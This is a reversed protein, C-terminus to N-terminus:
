KSVKSDAIAIVLERLAEYHERKREDKIYQEWQEVTSEEGFALKFAGFLSVYVEIAEPAYDLNSIRLYDPNTLLEAKIKARAEGATAM